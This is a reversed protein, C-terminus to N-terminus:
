MLGEPNDGTSHWGHNIAKIVDEFALDRRYPTKLMSDSYTRNPIKPTRGRYKKIYPLMRRGRAMVADVEEQSEGMDFCVMVVLAEDAFRGQRKTLAYFLEDLQHEDQGRQSRYKQLEDLVPRLLVAVKAPVIVTKPSQKRGSGLESSKEAISQAEVVTAGLSVLFSGVILWIKWKM